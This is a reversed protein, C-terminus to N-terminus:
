IMLWIMQMRPGMCLQIIDEPMARERRTKVDISAHSMRYFISVLSSVCPNEIRVNDQGFHHELHTRTPVRTTMNQEEVTLHRSSRLRPTLVNKEIVSQQLLAFDM